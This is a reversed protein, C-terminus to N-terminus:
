AGALISRDKKIGAAKGNGASDDLDEKTNSATQLSKRRIKLEVFKFKDDQEM